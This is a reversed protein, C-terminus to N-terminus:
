QRAVKLAKLLWSDDDTIELSAADAGDSAELVQRYCYLASSPDAREGALYEDGARLWGERRKSPTETALVRELEQPNAPVSEAPVPEAPPAAEVGIRPTAPHTAPETQRAGLAWGAIFISLAAALQLLRRRTGHAVARATTSRLLASRFADSPEPVGDPLGAVREFTSGWEEEM